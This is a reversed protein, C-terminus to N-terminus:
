NYQFKKKEKPFTYIIYHYHMLTRTTERISTSLNLTKFPFIEIVAKHLTFVRRILLPENYGTKLKLTLRIKQSKNEIGYVFNLRSIDCINTWNSCMVNNALIM